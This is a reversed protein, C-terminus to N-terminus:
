FLDLQAPDPRSRHTQHRAHLFRHTAVLVDLQRADDRVRAAFRASALVQDLANRIHKLDGYLDDGHRAFFDQLCKLLYRPFFAGYCAPDGHAAIAALREDILRRYRGPPCTLGRRELWTAPWTLAYLLMRRDRHFRRLAGRELPDTATYFRGRISDLLEEVAQEM